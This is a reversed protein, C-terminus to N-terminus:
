RVCCSTFYWLETKPNFRPIFLAHSLICHLGFSFLFLIKAKFTPLAWHADCLWRGWGRKKLCEPCWSGLPCNITLRWKRCAVLVLQEWFMVMERGEQDIQDRGKLILSLNKDEWSTHTKYPLGDLPYGFHPLSPSCFFYSQLVNIFFIQM